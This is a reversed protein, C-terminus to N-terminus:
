VCFFQLSIWSGLFLPASRRRREAFAAAVEYDAPLPPGAGKGDGSGNGGESEWAARWRKEVVAFRRSFHALSTLRMRDSLDFRSTPPAGVPVQLLSRHRPAHPDLHRPRQVRRRVHSALSHPRSAPSSGLTSDATHKPRFRPLFVVKISWTTQLAVAFPRSAWLV